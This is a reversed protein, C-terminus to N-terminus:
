TTAEVKTVSTKKIRRNLTETCTCTLSVFFLPLYEIYSIECNKSCSQYLGQRPAHRIQKPTFRIRVKLPSTMQIKGM